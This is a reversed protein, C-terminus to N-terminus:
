WHVPGGGAGGEGLGEGTTTMWPIPSDGTCTLGRPPAAHAVSEGIGPGVALMVVAVLVRVVVAVVLVM